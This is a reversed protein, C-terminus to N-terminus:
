EETAAGREESGTGRGEGVIAFMRLDDRSCYEQMWAVYSALSPFPGYPLYTWSAGAADVSDVAFLAEAHRGVALPELRCFRGEIVVPVPSAAPKWNPLLEGVPQGLENLPQEM